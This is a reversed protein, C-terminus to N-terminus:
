QLPSRLKRFGGRRGLSDMDSFGVGSGVGNAAGSWAQIAASRLPHPAFRSIATACPSQGHGKPRGGSWHSPGGDSRLSGQGGSRHSPGGDPAVQTRGRTADRSARPLCSRHHHDHGSHATLDSEAAGGTESGVIIACSKESQRRGHADSQKKTAPSLRLRSDTDSSKVALM